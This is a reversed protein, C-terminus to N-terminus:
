RDGERLRRDTSYAVGRNAYGGDKLAYELDTKERLEIIESFDAIAEDMDGSRFHAIARGNRCRLCEPDVRIAETFDAIVMPLDGQQAYLEARSVYVSSHLNRDLRIAETFDAIAMQLDGKRWYMHGRHVYSSPITPDSRIDKTYIRILEKVDEDGYKGLEIRRLLADKHSPELALVKDFQALAEDPKGQAQFSRGLEYYIDAQDPDLGRAAEAAELAEDLRGLHRLFDARKRERDARSKLKESWELGETWTAAGHYVDIIALAVDDSFRARQHLRKFLAEATEPKEMLLLTRGVLLSPEVLEPWLAQAAGFDLLAQEYEKEKLHIRGLRLRVELAMGLFGEHSDASGDILKGYAEAATTWDGKKRRRAPPM